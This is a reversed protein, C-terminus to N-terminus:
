FHHFANWRSIIGNSCPTVSYLINKLCIKKNIYLAETKTPKNQTFLGYNGRGFIIWEAKKIRIPKEFWIRKRNPHLVQTPLSAISLIIINPIYKIMTYLICQWFTSKYELTLLKEHSKNKNGCFLGELMWSQWRTDRITSSDIMWKFVVCYSFLGIFWVWRDFSANYPILLLELLILEDQHVTTIPCAFSHKSNIMWYCFSLIFIENVPWKVMINMRFIILISIIFLYQALVYLFDAVWVFNSIGMICAPFKCEALETNSVDPM